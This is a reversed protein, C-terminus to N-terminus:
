PKDFTGQAPLQAQEDRIGAFVLELGFEFEDEFPHLAAHETALEALHPYRAMETSSLVEIAIDSAEESGSYPLTSQQLAFGYAYSALATASRHALEPPFSAQGLHGTLAHHIQTMAPETPHRHMENLMWPHTVLCARISRVTGALTVDWNRNTLPMEIEGLVHDAMADLLRSKSEFYHYLSM